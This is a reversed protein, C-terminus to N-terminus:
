HWAQRATLIMTPLAMHNSVQGRAQQVAESMGALCCSPSTHSQYRHQFIIGSTSPDYAGGLFFSVNAATNLFTKGEIIADIGSNTYQVGCSQDQGDLQKPTLCLDLDAELHMQLALLHHGHAIFHSLSIATQLFMACPAKWHGTLWSLARHSCSAIRVVCLALFGTAPSAQEESMIASMYWTAPFNLGSNALLSM